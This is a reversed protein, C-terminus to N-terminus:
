LSRYKSSNEVKEEIKPRASFVTAIINHEIKIINGALIPIREMKDKAYVM